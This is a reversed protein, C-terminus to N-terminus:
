NSIDKGFAVSIFISQNLRSMEAILDMDQGTKIYTDEWMQFKEKIVGKITKVMKIMKDKYFITSM